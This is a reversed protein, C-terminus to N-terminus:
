ASVDKAVVLFEEILRRELYAAHAMSRAGTKAFIDMSHKKVTQLTVGMAAATEKVTLGRGARLVLVEVLRPTLAVRPAPAPSLALGRALGSPNGGPPTEVGAPTTTRPNRRGADLTM